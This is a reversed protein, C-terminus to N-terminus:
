IVMQKHLHLNIRLLVASFAGMCARSCVAGESDASVCRSAFSAISVESPAYSPVTSYPNKTVAFMRRGETEQPEGQYHRTRFVHVEMLQPENVFEFLLVGVKDLNSVTVGSEELMERYVNAIVNCKLAVFM